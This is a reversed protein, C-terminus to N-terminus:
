MEGQSAMAITVQHVSDDQFIFMFLAWLILNTTQALELLCFETQRTDRAYSVNVTLSLGYSVIQLALLARIPLLHSNQKKLITKIITLKISQIDSPNPM